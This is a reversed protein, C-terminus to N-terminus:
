NLEYSYNGVEIVEAFREYLSVKKADGEPQVFKQLSDNASFDPLVESDPTVKLDVTQFM